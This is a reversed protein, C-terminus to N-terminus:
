QSASGPAVHVFLSLSSHRMTWCRFAHLAHLETGTCSVMIQCLMHLPAVGCWYPNPQAFMDFRFTSNGVNCKVPYWEIGWRCHVVPLRELAKMNSGAVRACATVKQCSCKASSRLAAVAFACRAQRGDGQACLDIAGHGCEPCRIITLM